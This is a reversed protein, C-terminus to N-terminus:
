RIDELFSRNGEALTERLGEVTEAQGAWELM